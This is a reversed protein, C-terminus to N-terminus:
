FLNLPYHLLIISRGNSRPTGNAHQREYHLLHHCKNFHILLRFDSYFFITFIFDNSFISRFSKVQNQTPDASM